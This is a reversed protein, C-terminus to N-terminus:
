KDKLFVFWLFYLVWYTWVIPWLFCSLFRGLITDGSFDQFINTYPYESLFNGRVTYTTFVGIFLYTYLYIM